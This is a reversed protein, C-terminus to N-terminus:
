DQMDKAKGKTSAEARNPKSRQLLNELPCICSEWNPTGERTIAKCRFCTQGHIIFLQHLSYKLHDPIRLDLHAFAMPRDRDEKIDRPVWGLWKAMRICHTDMAFCPEQLSFLLVCAATKVGVERLLLLENMVQEMSLGRIHELSIVDNEYYWIEMDKQAQTLSEAGPISAAIGTLKEQKFAEAREANIGHIKELNAIIAKCKKDQLGGSRIRRKLEDAGLLRVKNWDTANSVPTVREGDITLSKTVAGYFSTVSEIVRNANAMTTAGSLITRILADVLLPTEGCGAVSLSPPPIKTPQVVNLHGNRHAASLIRYVRQCDAPSPSSLAPWPTEGWPVKTNVTYLSKEVKQKLTTTVDKSGNNTRQRKAAPEKIDFTSTKRTRLSYRNTSVVAAQDNSSSATTQEPQDDSVKVIGLGHPLQIHGDPIQPDTSASANAAKGKNNKRSAM